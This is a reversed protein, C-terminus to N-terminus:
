QVVEPRVTCKAPKFRASEFVLSALLFTILFFPNVSFPLPCAFSDVAYGRLPSLTPSFLFFLALHLLLILTRKQQFTLSFFFQSAPNHRRSELAVLTTTISATVSHSVLADLHLLERFPGCITSLTPLVRSSTLVSLTADVSLQWKTCTAFLRLTSSWHRCTM